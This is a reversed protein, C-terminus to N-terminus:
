ARAPRAAPAGRTVLAVSLLILALGAFSGPGLPEHLLLAGWLMGFAPALYTVMVARTPGAEVILYFYLLFAVSTCLVALTLVSGVVLLSPMAEPLALPTLPAIVLAAFLQSYTALGQPQAGKAKVKTYVAAFGYSLAALLSLGTALLTEPTLPIPGLGVLTVVGALGLLLGGVKQPTLREGMWLAAVLLGFLPTTANLTVLISSPLYLAAVAFLLYPIASNITGILLYHRWHPRLPPVQRRILGYLLLALAAIGVRLEILMVPGLVPVAIRFFLFVAGWIASLLLLAGTQKSTM